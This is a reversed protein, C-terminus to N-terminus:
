ALRKRVGVPDGPKMWCCYVTSWRRAFLLEGRVAFRHEAGTRIAECNDLRAQSVGHGAALAVM